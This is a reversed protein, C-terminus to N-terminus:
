TLRAIDCLSQAPSGAGGRRKAVHAAKGHGADVGHVPNVLKAVAHAAGIDRKM